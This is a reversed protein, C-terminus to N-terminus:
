DREEGLYRLLDTEKMLTIGREKAEIAQRTEPSPIDDKRVPADGLICYDTTNSVDETIRCPYRQLLRALNPELTRGAIVFEVTRGRKFAPNLIFMGPLVPDMKDQDLVKCQAITDMLRRVQVRGKLARSEPDARDYVQFVMGMSVWDERGVDLMVHNGDADVRIIKGDVTEDHTPEIIAETNTKPNLLEKNKKDLSRNKKIQEELDQQASAVQKRLDVTQGNLKEVQAQLDRTTSDLKTQLDNKEGAITEARAKEAEVEKQIADKADAMDQTKDDREALAADREKTVAAILKEQQFCREAYGELLRVVSDNPKDKRAEDFAEGYPSPLPGKAELDTLLQRYQQDVEGLSLWGVRQQYGTIADLDVRRLNKQEVIQLDKAKVEDELEAAKLGFIIAAAVLGVLLVSLVIVPVPSGSRGRAIRRTAM